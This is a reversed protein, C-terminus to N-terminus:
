QVGQNLKKQKEIAVRQLWQQESMNHPKLGRLRELESQSFHVESKKSGRTQQRGSHPTSAVRQVASQQRNEDASSASPKYAQASKTHPYAKEVRSDLAEYYEDSDAEYGENILNFHTYYAYQTAEANQPDSDDGYWPNQQHWGTAQETPKGDDLGQRQGENNQPLQM